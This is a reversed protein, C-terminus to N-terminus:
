RAAITEIVGLVASILPFITLSFAKNANVTADIKGYEVSPLLHKITDTISNVTDSAGNLLSNLETFYSNIGENSTRLMVFVIVPILISLVGGVIGLIRVEKGLLSLVVYAAQVILLIVMMALLVIAFLKLGKIGPISLSIDEGTYSSIQKALANTKEEVTNIARYFQFISYQERILILNVKLWKLFLMIVSVIASACAILKM